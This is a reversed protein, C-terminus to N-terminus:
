SFWVYMYKGESDSLSAMEYLSSLNIRTPKVCINSITLKRKQKTKHDLRLHFTLFTSNGIGNGYPISDIIHVIM